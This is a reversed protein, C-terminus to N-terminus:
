LHDHNVTASRDMGDFDRDRLYIAVNSALTRMTAENAVVQYWGKGNARGVSLLTVLDPHKIKLRNFDFYRGQQDTLYWNKDLM